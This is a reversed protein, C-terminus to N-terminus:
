KSAADELAKGLGADIEKFTDVIQTIIDSLKKVNELMEGRKIEWKDAFDNVRDRLEDHGTADAAAQANGDANELESTIAKLDDKLATLQDMNISLDYGAM